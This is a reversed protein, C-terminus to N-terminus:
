SLRYDDNFVWLKSCYKWIHEKSVWIWSKHIYISSPLWAKWLEHDIDKNHMNSNSLSSFLQPCNPTWWIRMPSYCKGLCHSESRWKRKELCDKHLCHLLAVLKLCQTSHSNTCYTVANHPIHPHRKFDHLSHSSPISGLHAVSFVSVWLVCGIYSMCM